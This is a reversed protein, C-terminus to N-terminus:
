AARSKGNMAAKDFRAANWRGRADLWFRVCHGAGRAGATSGFLVRLKLYLANKGPKATVCPWGTNIAIKRFVMVWAERGTPTELMVTTEGNPLWDVTNKSLAQGSKQRKISRYFLIPKGSGNQQVNVLFERQTIM